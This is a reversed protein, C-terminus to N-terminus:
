VPCHAFQCLAHDCPMGAPVWLGCLSDPAVDFRASTRASKAAFLFLADLRLGIMSDLNAIGKVILLGRQARIQRLQTQAREGLRDLRNGQVRSGTPVVRIAGGLQKRRLIARVAPAACDTEVPQSKAFAFVPAAYRRSAWVLFAMDFVVEGHNDTFLGVPVGHRL